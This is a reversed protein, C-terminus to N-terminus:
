SHGVWIKRGPPLTALWEAMADAYDETGWPGPPLPSDGFGPLDVLWSDAAPRMAQALPLLAHHTHGWGHAWILEVAGPRAGGSVRYAAFGTEGARCDERKPSTSSMQRYSLVGRHFGSNGHKEAAARGLVVDANHGPQLRQLREVLRAELRKDDIHRWLAIPEGARTEVVPAIVQQVRRQAGLQAFDREVDSRAAGAPQQRALGLQERAPWGRLEVDCEEGKVAEAAFVSLELTEELAGVDGIGTHAGQGRGHQHVLARGFAQESAAADGEQLVREGLQRGGRQRWGGREEQRQGFDAERAADLRHM